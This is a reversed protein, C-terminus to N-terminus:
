CSRGAYSPGSAGPGRLGARAAVVHVGLDGELYSTHSGKASEDSYRSLTVTRQAAELVLPPPTLAPTDDARAVTGSGLALPAAAAALVGVAVALPM